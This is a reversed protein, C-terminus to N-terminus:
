PTQPTSNPKVRRMAALKERVDAPMPAASRDREDLAALAPDRGGFVQAIAQGMPMAQGRVTVTPTSAGTRKDAEAQREQAAEAKDALGQLVAYLYGHGKLPLDLRGADRTALMGDIAQAWLALPVAWERGNRTIAQRELDPLLQMLLKIKKAATLRQKAPTHLGIYQMVRAGLPVSVAILRALAQHDAQHAFLVAMDLEAGCAPCSLDSM